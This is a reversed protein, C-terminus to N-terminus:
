ESAEADTRASPPLHRYVTDRTVGVMKALDAVPVGEGHAGTVADWVESEARRAATEASERRKVAKGVTAIARRQGDTQPVWKPRAVRM